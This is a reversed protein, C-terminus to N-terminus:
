SKRLTHNNNIRGSHSPIYNTGCVSVELLQAPSPSPTSMTDHLVIAMVVVSGRLREVVPRLM